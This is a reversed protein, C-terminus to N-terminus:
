EQWKNDKKLDLAMRRGLARIKEDRAVKLLEQSERTKRNIEGVKREFEEYAQIAKNKDEPMEVGFENLFGTLPYDIVDSFRHIQEGEYALYTWDSFNPESPNRDWTRWKKVPKDAM